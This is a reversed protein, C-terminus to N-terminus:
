NKCTQEDRAMCQGEQTCSSGFHELVRKSLHVKDRLYLAEAQAMRM